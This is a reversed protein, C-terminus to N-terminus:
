YLAIDKLVPRALSATITVRVKQATVTAVPLIRKYGITTGEAVTRWGGADEAEVRFGSIRQGLAIEEQLQVYNVTRAQPLTMEWISGRARKRIGAGAALNVGLVKERWARFEMLRTSDIEHIRGRTDPPVNLLLLANRGVSTLWIDALQEVSKVQANESERWFWGPRISVDIEGPIWQKGFVNGRALTDRPPAGAGPTFGEVDLRSWNTEGAVGRENGMWRCGPGVDSFLIADPSLAWVAEHFAPWDYEQRKGNPGEGCAGDFWQEFVPGYRGDHVSQLTRIYKENYAPSGYAPDNRDWPSIYVGFKLGYERCAESLDKLVDGQGGRWSSQAVTHLSEPNPWLCFGDHHKATIIIGKMGAAKATAAWQRCDLATPHFIDEAENGQGWELGTFTNPGFHVFMNYEMEQWRLQAESPVPGYPQPKCGLLLALVIALLSQIVTRYIM